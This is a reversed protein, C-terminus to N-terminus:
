TDGIAESVTDWQVQTMEPLRKVRRNRDFGRWKIETLSSSCDTPWDNITQTSSLHDRLHGGEPSQIFCHNRCTLPTPCSSTSARGSSCRAPTRTAKRRATDGRAAMSSVVVRASSSAARYVDLREIESPDYPVRRPEGIRPRAEESHGVIRRRVHESHPAYHAQNYAADLAAQDYHMFVHPSTVAAAQQAHQSM